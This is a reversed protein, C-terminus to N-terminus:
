FYSRSPPIPHLLPLPLPFAARSGDLVASTANLFEFLSRWPPSVLFKSENADAHRVAARFGSSGHLFEVDILVAASSASANQHVSYGLAARRRAATRFPDHPVPAVLRSHLSDLMMVHTYHRAISANLILGLVASRIRMRAHFGDSLESKQPLFLNGKRHHKSTENVIAPFFRRLRHPLAYPSLDVSQFFVPSKTKRRMTSQQARTLDAHLVLLPHWTRLPSFYFTELQQAFKAANSVPSRRRRKSDSQTGAEEVVNSAAVFTSLLCCQKEFM